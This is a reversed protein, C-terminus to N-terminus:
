RNAMQPIKLVQGPKILDPNSLQDKNLNFIKMYDNASGLHEKAIQSLTDGSGVVYAKASRGPGRITQGPQLTGPSSTWAGSQIRYAASPGSVSVAIPQNYGALTIAASEVVTNRPVGLREGFTFADPVADNGGSGASTVTRFVAQTRNVGSSSGVTVTTDASGGGTAASTHRVRLAQGAM